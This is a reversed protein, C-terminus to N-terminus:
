DKDSCGDEVEPWMFPIGGRQIIRYSADIREVMDAPPIPLVGYENRIKVLDMAQPQLLNLSDPHIFFRGLGELDNAFIGIAECCSQLSDGDSFEIGHYKGMWAAALPDSYYYRM